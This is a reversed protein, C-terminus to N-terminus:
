LRAIDRPIKKFTVGLNKLDEDSVSCRDAYIIYRETGAAVSELFVADLTTVRDKEYYFYYATGGTEGLLYEDSPDTAKAPLKTEM